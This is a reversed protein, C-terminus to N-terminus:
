RRVPGRDRLTGPRGYSERVNSSRRSRARARWSMHRVGLRQPARGHRSGELKAVDSLPALSVPIAATFPAITLIAEANRRAFVAQTCATRIYKTQTYNRAM